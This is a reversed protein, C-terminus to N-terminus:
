SGETVGSILRSWGGRVQTMMSHAHSRHAVVLGVWFLYTSGIFVDKNFKASGHLANYMGLTTTSKATVLNCVLVSHLSVNCVPVYVLRNGQSFILHLSSVDVHM